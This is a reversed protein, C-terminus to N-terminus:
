QAVYQNHMSNARDTVRADHSPGSHQEMMTSEQISGGHESQRRDERGLRRARDDEVAGAIRGLVGRRRGAGQGVAAPLVFAVEAAPKEARRDRRMEEEARGM